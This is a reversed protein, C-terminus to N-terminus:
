GATDREEPWPLNKPSQQPRRDLDRKVFDDFERGTPEQRATPDVHKRQAKCERWDAYTNLTQLTPWFWRHRWSTMADSPRDGSCYAERWAAYLASLEDVAVTHRYWCAPISVETSLPYRRALYDVFWRTESWLQAAQEQTLFEWAWRSPRVLDVREVLEAQLEFLTDRLEEIKDANTAARGGLESVVGALEVFQNTHRETAAALDSVVEPLVALDLVPVEALADGVEPEDVEPPLEADDQHQAM